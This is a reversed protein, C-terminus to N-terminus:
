TTALQKAIYPVLGNGYVAVECNLDTLAEMFQPFLEAQKAMAANTKFTKGNVTVDFTWAEAETRSQKAAHTQEGRFSSDYGFLAFKRFGMTCCLAIASLGITTGGGVLSMNRTPFLDEIGGIMAHWQQVPKGETKDFMGPACQSAILYKDAWDDVFEM